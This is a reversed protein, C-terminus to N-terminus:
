LNQGNEGWIAAAVIQPAPNNLADLEDFYIFTAPSGPAHGM